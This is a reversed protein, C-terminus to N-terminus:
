KKKRLLFAPAVSKRRGATMLLRRAKRKDEQDQLSSENTKTGRIHVINFGEDAYFGLRREHGNILMRSCPTNTPTSSINYWHLRGPLKDPHKRLPRGSRQRILPSNNVPMVDHCSDIRPMDTNTGICQDMGVFVDYDGRGAAEIKADNLDKGGKGKAGTLGEVALSVLRKKPLKPHGLKKAIRREKKTTKVMKTHKSFMEVLKHVHDVRTTLILVRYGDAVDKLVAAKIQMILPINRGVQTQLNGFWHSRFWSTNIVVGTHHIYVTPTEIDGATREGQAVIPGAIDYTILHKGDKRVEDASLAMRYKSNFSAFVKRTAEAPLGIAEDAIVLGFFDRMRRRAQKGGKSYLSAYTMMTICPFATKSTLKSANEIVGCLPYGLREELEILNTFKKIDVLWSGSLWNKRSCLVLTRTQLRIAAAIGVSTKGYGTPARVLGGAYSNMFDRNVEGQDHRWDFGDIFSLTETMPPFSRRDSWYKRSGFWGELKEIDGRHFGVIGNKETYMPIKVKRFVTKIEIEGDDGEEEINEAETFTHTFDKFMGRPVDASPVYLRNRLIPKRRM